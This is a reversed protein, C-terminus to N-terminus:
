VAPSVSRAHAADGVPARQQSRRDILRRVLRDGRRHHRPQLFSGDSSTRAPQSAARISPRHLSRDALQLHLQDAAALRDRQLPWLRPTVAVSSRVLLGRLGSETPACPPWPIGRRPDACARRRRSRDRLAAPCRCPATCILGTTSFYGSVAANTAAAPSRSTSAIVSAISLRPPRAIITSVPPPVPM